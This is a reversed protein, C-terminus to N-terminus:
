QKSPSKWLDCTYFYEGGDSNSFSKGWPRECTQAVYGDFKLYKCTGCVEMGDPCARPNLPSTLKAMNERRTLM